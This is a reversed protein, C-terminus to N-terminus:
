SLLRLEQCQCVDQYHKLYRQALMQPDFDARVWDPAERRIKERTVRDNMAQHLTQRVSAENLHCVWGLQHEQVYDSLGVQDSILVPTGLALCELVVNAFNENQSTLVLLDANVLIEVKRDGDVWELWEIKDDIELRRAQKKLQKIYDPAGGGAITLRWPKDFGKLSRFLLDLGKKPHVRSMFLLQFGASNVHAPRGSQPPLHIINPEIFHRGHPAVKLAERAEQNSTVHLVINHFLWRGITHQFVKRVRSKITYPSIMGHPSLIAKKGRIRCIFAAGFAVWNWWSHIHVVDFQQINQWIKWLLMPSFHGHDGTWRPFYWVRATDVLVPTGAPVNLEESGNATTTYVQVNAGARIQEEVLRSVSIITGGYQYAPKYSPTIHLISM